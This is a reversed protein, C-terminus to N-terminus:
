LLHLRQAKDLRATYSPLLVMYKGNNQDLLYLAHDFALSFKAQQAYAYFAMNRAQLNNPEVEAWLIGLEQLAENNKQYTATSVARAIVGPDRTVAAQHRYNELALGLEGRTGAFEAILLDYFTQTPFPRVPYDRRLPTKNAQVHIITATNSTNQRLEIQQSEAQGPGTSTCASPLLLLAAISLLGKLSPRCRHYKVSFHPKDLM